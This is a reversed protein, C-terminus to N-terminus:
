LSIKHLNEFRKGSLKDAKKNKRSITKKGYNNVYEEEHEGAADEGLARV